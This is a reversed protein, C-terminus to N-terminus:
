LFAEAGGVRGRHPGSVMRCSRSLGAESLGRQGIPVGGSRDSWGGFICRREIARRHERLIDAVIANYRSQPTQPTGSALEGFGAARKIMRTATIPDKPKVYAPKVRVLREAASYIPVGQATPVVLPAIKRNGAIKTFDVYEDTFNIQQTYFQLWYNSPPLMMDDDRIVGFLTATDYIQHNIM